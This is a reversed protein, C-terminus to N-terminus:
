AAAPREERGTVNSPGLSQENKVGVDETGAAGSVLSQAALHAQRADAVLVRAADAAESRRARVQVVEQQM